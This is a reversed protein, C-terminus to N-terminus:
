NEKRAAVEESGHAKGKMESSGSKLIGKPPGLRAEQPSRVGGTRGRLCGEQGPQRNVPKREVWGVGHSGSDWCCVHHGAGVDSM